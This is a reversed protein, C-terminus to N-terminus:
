VRRAARRYRDPTMQTHRRFTAHFQSVSGFGASDAVDAIKSDTSALLSQALTIRQQILFSGLGTGVSRLFLRSATDPHLGVAAAVDSVRVIPRKNDTGTQAILQLMREVRDGAPAGSDTRRSKRLRADRALRRTRAELEMLMIRRAEPDDQHLDAAWRQMMAADHDCWGANPEAIPDGRLMAAVFTQPLGWRLLMGIPFTATWMRTRRGFFEALHPVAGWTLTLRGIPYEYRRGTSMLVRIGGDLLLHFAAAHRRVFHPMVHPKTQFHRCDLDMTLLPAHVTKATM